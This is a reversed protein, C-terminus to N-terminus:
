GKNEQLPYEYGPVRVYNHRSGTLYDYMYFLSLTRFWTAFLNSENVQSSVNINGYNFYEGKRFVFGGDEMQNQAVWYFAKTLCERIESVKYTNVGLSLRILPDIADIDECASSNKRMDFGGYKNQLALIFDIANEKYPIVINDYNLLPYFHYSCRITEYKDETTMKKRWHWMGCDPQINNLLWEQVVSITDSAEQVGMFDRAYQLCVTINMVVNSSKWSNNWDLEALFRKMSKIDYFPELFKFENLPRIGLRELAIIVHPIFHRKGWGDGIIYDYNMINGDYFYGDSMQKHIINSKLEEIKESQIGLLGCLMILYVYSYINKQKCSYSFYGFNEESLMIQIYDYLQKLIRNFENEIDINEPLLNIKGIEKKQKIEKYYKKVISYLEMKKVKEINM